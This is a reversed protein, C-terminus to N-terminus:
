AFPEDATVESCLLGLGCRCLSAGNVVPAVRETRLHCGMQPHAARLGYHSRPHSIVCEGAARPWKGSRVGQERFSGTSESIDDQPGLLRRRDLANRNPPRRGRACGRAGAVGM